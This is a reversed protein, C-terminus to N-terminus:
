PEAENTVVEKAADVDEAVLGRDILVPVESLAADATSFGQGVAAALAALLEHPTSPDQATV